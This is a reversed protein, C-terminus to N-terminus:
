LISGDKESSVELPVIINRQLNPSKFSKPVKVKSYLPLKDVGQMEYRQLLYLHEELIAFCRASEEDVPSTNEEKSIRDLDVVIM